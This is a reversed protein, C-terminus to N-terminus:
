GNDRPRVRAKGTKAWAPPEQQEDSYWWIRKRAHPVCYHHPGSPDEFDHVTATRTCPNGDRKVWDCLVDSDM